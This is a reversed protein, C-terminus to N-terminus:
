NRGGYVRDLRGLIEARKEVTLNFNVTMDPKRDSYQVMDGFLKAAMEAGWRQKEIDPKWEQKVNGQKDIVDMWKHADLADAIVKYAKERTVGARELSEEKQELNNIKHRSLKEIQGSSKETGREQGQRSISPTAMIDLEEETM